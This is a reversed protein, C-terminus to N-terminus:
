ATNAAPELLCDRLRQPTTPDMGHALLYAEVGGGTGDENASATGVGGVSTGKGKASAAGYDADIRDLLDHMLAPPAATATAALNRSIGADAFDRTISDLFGDSLHTSTIAYEDVIESRGVGLLDLVFAGLVGTRDKGASCHFVVGGDCHEAIADVALALRHGFHTIMLDYIRALSRDSLDIGSAAAAAKMEDVSLPRAPFFHDDFIPLEIRRVDLGDVADPLKSREGIDRLDIVTRIGLEELDARARDTLQALGDARFVLGHRVAQDGARTPAGGLDRFNFTGEIDLRELSM